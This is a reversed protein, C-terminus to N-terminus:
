SCLTKRRNSPLNLKKILPSKKIWNDTNLKRTWFTKKTTMIKGPAPGCLIKGNKEGSVKKASSIKYIWNSFSTKFKSSAKFAQDALHAARIHSKSRVLYAHDLDKSRKKGVTAVLYLNM